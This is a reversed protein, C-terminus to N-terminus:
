RARRPIWTMSAATWNARSSSSSGRAPSSITKASMSSTNKKTVFSEHEGKMQLFKEKAQLIKQQKISEAELNAKEIIADARGKSASRSVLIYIALALVAGAVAALIYYLFM